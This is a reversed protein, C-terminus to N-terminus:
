KAFPLKYSKNPKLYIKKHAYDLIVHFRKIIEMGMNGLYGDKGEAKDNVSLKIDLNTFTFGKFELAAIRAGLDETVANLGQTHLTVVDGIKDDLKYYNNFPSSILLGHDAGSDFMVKGSFEEGNLLRITVPFRPINIGKSFEFSIPVYGVTDKAKLDNYLLLCQKDFDIKTIYKKLFDYGIIGDFKMAFSSQLASFDLLILNIHNVGVENTFNLRQDPIVNYGQSGGNGSVNTLLKTDTNIGIKVAKASDLMTGTSGTDFIFVSSASNVLGVKFFISNGMFNFPIKAFQAISFLPFLLIIFLLSIKPITPM